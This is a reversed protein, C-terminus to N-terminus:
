SALERQRAAAWRTLVREYARAANAPRGAGLEAIAEALDEPSPDHERHAATLLEGVTGYDLELRSGAPFRALWGALEALAVTTPAAPLARTLVALAQDARRRARRLETVYRVGPEGPCRDAASVVALWALPVVWPACSVAGAPGGPANGAAAPDGAAVPLLADALLSPLGARAQAAAQWVRRQLDLPCVYTLGDVREIIAQGAFRAPVQLDARVLLALAAAAELRAAAARDPAAGQDAYAQWRDRAAPGLASLPVYVRLWAAYRPM